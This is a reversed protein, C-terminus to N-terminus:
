NLGYPYRTLEWPARPIKVFFTNTPVGDLIEIITLYHEPCEEDGIWFQVQLFKTKKEM